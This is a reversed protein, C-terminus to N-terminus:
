KPIFCETFNRRFMGDSNLPNHYVENEVDPNLDLATEGIEGLRDINILKTEIVRFALKVNPDNDIDIPKKSICLADVVSIWPSLVYSLRADHYLHEMEVKWGERVKSWYTDYMGVAYNLLAHSTALRCKVDRYPEEFRTLVQLVSLRFIELDRRLREYHEDSYDMWYQSRDGNLNHRMNRIVADDYMDIRQMAVKAQKKVNQRFLKPEKKLLDYAAKVEMVAVNNIPAIVAWYMASFHDRLNVAQHASSILAASTGNGVCGNLASHVNRSVEAQQRAKLQQDLPLTRNAVVPPLDLGRLIAKNM